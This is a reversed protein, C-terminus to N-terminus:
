RLLMNLFNQDKTSALLEQDASSDPDSPSALSQFNKQKWIEEPLCVKSAASALRSQFDYGLEIGLFQNVADVVQNPQQQLQELSVFLHSPSDIFRLHQIRDEMVRKANASESRDGAWKGAIKGLAETNAPLSRIMHIFKPEAVLANISDIYHLHLPTKEVWGRCNNQEAYEDLCSVVEKAAALSSLHHFVSKPIDIGVPTAWNALSNRLKKRWGILRKYSSTPCLSRFLFTEPFSTLEDSTMLLTQMLTTGSRPSGVVFVRKAM